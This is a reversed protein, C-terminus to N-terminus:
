LPDINGSGSSSQASSMISVVVDLSQDAIARSESNHQVIPSFMLDYLGSHRLGFRVYAMSCRVMVTRADGGERGARELSRILRQFGGIAVQVLLAEKSSFHRYVAAHSVHLRQTLVRLSLQEPGENDLMAMATEVLAARLDHHHYAGKPKIDMATEKDSEPATQEVCVIPDSATATSHEM